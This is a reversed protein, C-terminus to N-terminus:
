PYPPYPSTTTTTTGTTTGTPAKLVAKGQASVAYWKAGFNSSGQGRTQGASKDLAFTYLPHENYTVQLRGNARKTTGVLAREVGSGVTLTGAKMLPPWYTACSGSCASRGNMDKMFLYLTRGKANVLIHGLSTQRLTLTASAQSGAGGALASSALLGMVGLVMALVLLGAIRTTHGLRGVSAAWTHPRHRRMENM